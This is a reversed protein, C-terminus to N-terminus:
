RVRLAVRRGRLIAFAQPPPPERQGLPARSALEPESACGAEGALSPGSPKTGRASFVCHAQNIQVGATPRCDKQM